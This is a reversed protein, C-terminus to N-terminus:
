QHKAMWVRAMDQAKEIQSPTMEKAVIDRLKVADSEGSSALIGRWM